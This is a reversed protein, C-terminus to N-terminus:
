RQYRPPESSYYVPIKALDVNNGPWEVWWDLLWEKVKENQPDALNSSLTFGEGEKYALAFLMGEVPDYFIAGSAVPCFHAKCYKWAIGSRGTERPDVVMLDSPDFAPNFERVKYEFVLIRSEDRVRYVRLRVPSELAAIFVRNVEGFQREIYTIGKQFSVPKGASPGIRAGQILACGLSLALATIRTPLM